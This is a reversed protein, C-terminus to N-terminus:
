PVVQFSFSWLMTLFWAFSSLFKSGAMELLPLPTSGPLHLDLATFNAELPAQVVNSCESQFLHQFREQLLFFCWGCRCVVWHLKPLLHFSVIVCSCSLLRRCIAWDRSIITSSSPLDLNGSQGALEKAPHPSSTQLPFFSWRWLVWLGVSLPTDVPTQFSSCRLGEAYSCPSPHWAHRNGTFAPQRPNGACDTHLINVATPSVPFSLFAAASLTLPPLLFLRNSSISYSLPTTSSALLPRCATVLGSHIIILVGSAM